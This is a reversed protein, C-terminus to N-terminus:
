AILCPVLFFKLMVYEAFNNTSHIVIHAFGASEMLTVKESKIKPVKCSLSPPLFVFSILSNM